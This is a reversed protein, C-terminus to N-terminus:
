VDRSDDDNIIGGKKWAFPPIKFSRQCTVRLACDECKNSAMRCYDMIINRCMGVM